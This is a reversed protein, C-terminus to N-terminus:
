RGIPVPLGTAGLIAFLALGGLADSVFYYLAIIPLAPLNIAWALLGLDHNEFMVFTDAIFVALAVPLAALWGRRSARSATRNSAASPPDYPNQDM